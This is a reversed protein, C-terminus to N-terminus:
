LANEKGKEERKSRSLKQNNEKKQSTTAFVQLTLYVPRTKFCFLAIKKEKKKFNKKFLWKKM